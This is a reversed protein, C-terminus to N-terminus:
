PWAALLRELEAVARVPDRTVLTVETPGFFLEGEWVVYGDPDPMVGAFAPAVNPRLMWDDCPISFRLLHHSLWPYLRRLGSMSAAKALPTMIPPPWTRSRDACSEDFAEACELLWDWGSVVDVAM